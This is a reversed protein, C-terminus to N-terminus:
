KDFYKRDLIKGNKEMEMTYSNKYANFNLSNRKRVSLQKEGWQKFINEILNRM